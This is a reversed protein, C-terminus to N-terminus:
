SSYTYAYEFVLIDVLSWAFVFVIFLVTTKAWKISCRASILGIGYLVVYCLVLFVAMIVAIEVRDSIQMYQTAIAFLGIGALDFFYRVPSVFLFILIIGSFNAPESFRSGRCNMWVFMSLVVLECLRNVFLIYVYSSFPSYNKGPYQGPYDRVQLISLLAESFISTLMFGLVFIFIAIVRHRVAFQYLQKM